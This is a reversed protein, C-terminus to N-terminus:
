GGGLLGLVRERMELFQPSMRDRPRELKVDLIEQVRGPKASLIVLRDALFIAEDVSHTVM